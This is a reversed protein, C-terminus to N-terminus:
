NFLYIIAWLMIVKTVTFIAGIRSRHRIGCLVPVVAYLANLADYKM